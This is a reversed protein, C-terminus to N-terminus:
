YIILGINKMMGLVYLGIITFAIGSSMSPTRKKVFVAMLCCSCMFILEDTFVEFHM